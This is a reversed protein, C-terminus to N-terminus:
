DEVLEFGAETLRYFKGAEIGEAGVKATRVDLVNGEDDRRALVIWGTESARAKGEYGLACAISQEGTASAAGRNGTASAAGYDGTASAAGYDGTASAAGYDGTASAAGYDGTASAAGRNGTASAAGRNGTASAAGYDGTASAAGYDGTASAAGYDGTASAAGRNGTASAAGYDGTASAAGRNGTASAAGYDGTASAAGYDGTASPGEEWKARDFVWKVARQILDPLKIEAEITIRAAAIKTDDGDRDTDGALTVVAFRSTAPAYYRFVDLPFECAHFGSACAEVSGVHEFTKGVEFQYGRCQLNQDFGKFAPVTGQENSM